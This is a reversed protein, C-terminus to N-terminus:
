IMLQYSSREIKGICDVQLYQLVMTSQMTSWVGKFGKPNNRFDQIFEESLWYSNVCKTERSALFDCQLQCSIIHFTVRYEMCKHSIIFTCKENNCFVSLRKKNPHPFRINMLKKVGYQYISRNLLDNTAFELGLCFQPDDISTHANFVSINSRKRSGDEKSGSNLNDHDVYNSSIDGEVHMPEETEIGLYVNEEFIIDDQLPVEQEFEEEDFTDDEKLVDRPLEHELNSINNIQKHQGDHDNRSNQGHQDHDEYQIKDM